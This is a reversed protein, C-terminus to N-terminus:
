ILNDGKKLNDIAWLPQLNTYHCLKYIEEETKASSLPIIHDIHIYKGLLEWSMGETFQTEIHKKLFEPSCGVIEFTTNYKISNKTIYDFVRRRIIKGIRYLTNTQYRAKYYENFKNKNKQYYEKKYKKISEIKKQRHDIRKELIEKRHILYYKKKNELLKSKNEDYYKKKSVKRCPKCESRSKHFENIDKEIKCKSCIKREM